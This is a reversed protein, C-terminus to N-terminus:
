QAQDGPIPTREHSGIAQGGPDNTALVRRLQYRYFRRDDQEPILTKLKLPTSSAATARKDWTNAAHRIVVITSRPDLQVMPASFGETFQPEEQARAEDSFRHNFLYERRYAFTAATAHNPGFPGTVTVQDNTTNYMYMESSGALLRDSALLSEVAHSVRDRPYFDDDDMHVIIEGRAERGLFNRKAGLTMPSELRLYRVRPEAGVLDAISDEGDDAILIEMPGAYDQRRVYKLYQAMFVRRNFTPTVISVLPRTQTM